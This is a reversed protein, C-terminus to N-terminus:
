KLWVTIYLAQHNYNDNPWDGNNKPSDYGNGNQSWGHVTAGKLMVGIAMCYDKVKTNGQPNYSAYPYSGGHASLPM